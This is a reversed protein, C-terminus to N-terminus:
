LIIGDKLVNNYFPTSKLRGNWIDKTYIIPTILINEKLQIDYLPDGIRERDHDTIKEQDLLVLLDIDSRNNYDGRAYSGFLILLARPEVQLLATKIHQLVQHYTAM